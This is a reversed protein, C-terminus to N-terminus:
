NSGHNLRFPGGASETDVWEGNVRVVVRGIVTNGRQAEIRFGVDEGMLVRPPNVPRPAISQASAWGGAAGLMLLALVAAARAFRKQGM